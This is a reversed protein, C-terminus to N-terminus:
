ATGYKTEVTVGIKQLFGTPLIGGACVIVADNAIELTEGDHDITVAKETIGKVNSKMLVKLRGAAEA